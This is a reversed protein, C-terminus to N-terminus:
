KLYLICRGLRSLARVTPSTEKEGSAEASGGNALWAVLGDHWLAQEEPHEAYLERVQFVLRTIIYTHMYNHIYM